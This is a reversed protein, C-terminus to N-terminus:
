GTYGPCQAQAAQPGTLRVWAADTGTRPSMYASEMFRLGAGFLTTFLPTFDYTVDVVVVPASTFADVPLTTISAPQTDPAQNLQGCPRRAANGQLGVSWAVNANYTCDSTCGAVTPTMVVSSIAVGYTSAPASSLTPMVAFVATSVTSAQTRTLSNTNTTTAAMGTAMRAIADAAASLQWWSIVANTVDYLSMAIVVLVPALLAFELAAVGRRDAAARVLRKVARYENQYPAGVTVSTAAFSGAGSGDPAPWSLLPLQYTAQLLMLSGGQGPSFPPTGNPNLTSGPIYSTVPQLSVTVQSCDLFWWRPDCLTAAQFTARNASLKQTSDVALARAAHNTAFDLAVQVYLRFGLAIVFLTLGLFASGTLAFELATAGRRDRALRLLRRALGRARGQDRREAM